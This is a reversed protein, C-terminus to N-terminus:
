KGRNATLPPNLSYHAVDVWVKSKAGQFTQIAVSTHQGLGALSNWVRKWVGESYNMSRLCRWTDWICKRGGSEQAPCLCNPNVNRQKDQHGKFTWVHNHTIEKRRLKDIDPRYVPIGTYKDTAHEPELRQWYSRILTAFLIYLTCHPDKQLCSYQSCTIRQGASCLLGLTASRDSICECQFLYFSNGKGQQPKTRLSSRM